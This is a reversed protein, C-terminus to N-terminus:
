EDANKIAEVTGGAMIACGLVLRFRTMAWVYYLLLTADGITLIRFKWTVKLLPTMTLLRENLMWGFLANLRSFSPLEFPAAATWVSSFTQAGAVLLRCMLFCWKLGVIPEVSFQRGLLCLRHPPLPITLMTAQKLRSPFTACMLVVRYDIHKRLCMFSVLPVPICRLWSEFLRRRPIRSFIATTPWGVTRTRLLGAPFKLGM